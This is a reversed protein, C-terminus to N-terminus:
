LATSPSSSPRTEIASPEQWPIWASMTAGYRTSSVVSSCRSRQSGPKTLPSSSHAIAIVSGDPPESRALRLDVATRSPSSQIRFPDLVNM